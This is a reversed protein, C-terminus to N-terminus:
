AAARSRLRALQLLDWPEWTYDTYISTYLGYKYIFRYMNHDKRNVIFDSLPLLEQDLINGNLWTESILVIDAHESYVLDQVRDLNDQPGLKISSKWAEPM